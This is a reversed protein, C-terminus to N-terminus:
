ASAATTRARRSMLTARAAAQARTRVHLKDLLHHVHNKVTAEAINCRQAIEKNSLGDCILLLMQQERSTLAPVPDARPSTEPTALRRLLLTTIRPPCVLEGNAVAHIVSVLESVSADCTVYAVAGAEVLLLIESEAEDIALAIAKAQPLAERVARLASVGNRTTDVIAVAPHQPRLLEIAPPVGECTGVVRIAEASALTSVLGERFLKVDSIIVVDIM